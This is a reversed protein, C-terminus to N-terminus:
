SWRSLSFALWKVGFVAGCGLAVVALTLGIARGVSRPARQKEVTAEM